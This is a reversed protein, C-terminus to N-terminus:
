AEAAPPRTDSGLGELRYTIKARDYALARAAQAADEDRILGRAVRGALWDCVVRRWVDHRAPISAFARTDDNFGALNHIGATEVVADLYTEMGRVADFFWWPAGLIVSPYHGALPALERGYTTEDLTFLVLRFGPTGGFAQLLPSLPRTWETPVPIDAGMDKGFRAAVRPDHDRFSGVHLQMVLGDDVSMRAMEFLMHARFLRAEDPSTSGRLARDFVAHAAAPDLPATDPALAAHDTAVAGAARFRERRERLARLYDAYREIPLDARAELAHLADRWDESGIAVAADPRFTPRVDFGERQLQLHRDVPDGARDTTCLTEVGFTRFLARPAFADSALKEALADYLRDANHAAPVAHLDFVEGLEKRLWLGTPTGVFLHFNECFRRWVLRHDRESPGGDRRPVGLAELPVGQSHLMRLIYHDPIVFLEAPDGFRADPDALLEVPVHGHPCILPLDRVAAYLQRALPATAPRFVHDPPLPADRTM